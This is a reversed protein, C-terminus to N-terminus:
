RTGGDDGTFDDDGETFVFGSEVTVSFTDEDTAGFPDESKITINDSGEITRDSAYDLTALAANVNSVTGSFSIENSSKAAFGGAAETSVIGNSASVTVDLTNNNPDDVSVGEIDQQSGIVVSPTTSPVTNEPDANEEDDNITVTATGDSSSIEGASSGTLKVEFREVGDPNDITGDFTSNDLIPVTIEASTEGGKVTVSGNTTTYDSGATAADDASLQVTEFDVTTDSDPATPTSVTLTAESDTGETVTVDSVSFTPAEPQDDGVSSTDGGLNVADGTQSTTGDITSPNTDDAPDAIEFAGVGSPSLTVNGDTFRVDAPQNLSGATAVVQGDVVIELQNDANVQFTTDAASAAVDIREINGDLTVGTVGSQIAIGENGGGRGFVSADDALTFLEDADLFINAM